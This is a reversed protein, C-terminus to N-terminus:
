MERSFNVLFEEATSILQELEQPTFHRSDVELNLQNALHKVLAQALQTLSSTHQKQYVQDNAKLEQLKELLARSFSYCFDSM